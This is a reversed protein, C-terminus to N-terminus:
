VARLDYRPATYLHPLSFTVSPENDVALIRLASASM